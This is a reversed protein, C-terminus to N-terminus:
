RLMAKKMVAAVYCSICGSHNTFLLPYVAPLGSSYALLVHNWLCLKQNNRFGIPTSLMHLECFFIFQTHHLLDVYSGPILICNVMLIGLSTSIRITYNQISSCSYFIASNLGNEEVNGTNTWPLWSLVNQQTHELLCQPQGPVFAACSLFCIVSEISLIWGM